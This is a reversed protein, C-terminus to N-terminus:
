QQDRQILGERVLRGADDWQEVTWERSTKLFEPTEVGFIGSMFNVLDIAGGLTGYVTRNTNGVTFGAIYNLGKVFGQGFDYGADNLEQEISKETPKDQEEQVETVDEVVNPTIGLREAAEKVKAPDTLVNDEQEMYVPEGDLFYVTVGDKIVPEAGEPPKPNGNGGGTDEPAPKGKIYTDVFSTGFPRFIAPNRDYYEKILNKEEENLLNNKYVYRFADVSQPNEILGEILLGENSDAKAKGRRLAAVVSNEALEVRQTYTDRESVPELGQLNLQIPEGYGRSLPSTLSAEIQAGTGMGPFNYNYVQDQLAVEPDLGLLAALGRREVEPKSADKPLSAFAPTVKAITEELSLSPAYNENLEIVSNLQSGSYNDKEAQAALMKLRDPSSELIKIIKGEDMGRERLFSSASKLAEREEAIKSQRQLGVTRLYDQQKAVRDRIYEDREKIERAMGGFFGAAFGAM